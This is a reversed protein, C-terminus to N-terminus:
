SPWPITVTELVCGTTNLLLALNEFLYLWLDGPESPVSLSFSISNNFENEIIITNKGDLFTNPADSSAQGRQVQMSGPTYSPPAIASIAFTPQSAGNLYLVIPSDSGDINVSANFVYVQDAM